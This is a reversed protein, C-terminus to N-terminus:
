LCRMPRENADFFYAYVLLDHGTPNIIELWTLAGERLEYTGTLYCSASDDRSPEECGKAFSPACMAALVVGAGILWLKAPRNFFRRILTQVAEYM